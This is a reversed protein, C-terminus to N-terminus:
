IKGLDDEGAVKSLFTAPEVADLHLNVLGWGMQM